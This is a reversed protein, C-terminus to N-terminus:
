SSCKKSGLSQRNSYETSKETSETTSETTSEETSGESDVSSEVVESNSIEDAYSVLPINSIALSLALGLAIRNKRM